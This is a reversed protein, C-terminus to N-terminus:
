GNIVGRRANTNALPTNAPRESAASGNQRVLRERLRAAGPPDSADMLSALLALSERHMRDLYLAQRLAEMAGIRDAGALALVARLYLAQPPLQTGSLGHLASDLQKAAAAIQGRDALTQVELLTATLLSSTSDMIPVDTEIARSTPMPTSLVPSSSYSPPANKERAAEPSSARADRDVLKPATYSLGSTSFSYQAQAREPAQRNAYRDFTFQDTMDAPERAARVDSQYDFCNNAADARPVFDGDVLAINEAHGTVILAGPALAFKLRKLWSRKASDSLYILLNRHFVVDFPVDAAFISSEMVNGVRFQVQAKVHPLIHTGDAQQVAYAPPIARGRLSWAPYVARKAIDIFAPNLDMATILFDQAQFGRELLTIALSYPEEGRACPLSLVNLRPTLVNNRQHNLLRTQAFGAFYDIQVQDRFFWSEPVSVSELLQTLATSSQKVTFLLQEFDACGLAAQCQQFAQTLALEGLSAPDLGIKDSVVALLGQYSM